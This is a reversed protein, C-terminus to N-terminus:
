VEGLLQEYTVPEEKLKENEPFGRCVIGNRNKDADERTKYFAFFLDNNTLQEEYFYPVYGTIWNKFHFIKVKMYPEM